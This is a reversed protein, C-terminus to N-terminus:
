NSGKVLRPDGSFVRERMEVAIDPRDTILAEVRNERLFRVMMKEDNVTWVYVGKGHRKARAMFGFKLLRFHPALFDVKAKQCRRMPFLESIRTRIPHDPRPRGLLLGVKVTPYTNKITELSSDRFSTIVFEDESFYSKLLGVIEDEYGEEKLELDIKIRSKLLAFVEHIEPIHLGQPKFIGQLEQYTSEHIGKKGVFPDHFAVFAHDKTRRVDFEIMDAGLEIANEFSEMTNDKAYASAGRHAVILPKDM